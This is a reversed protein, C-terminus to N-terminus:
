IRMVQQPLLDVVADASVDGFEQFHRLVLGEAHLLIIVLAVAGGHAPQHGLVPEIRVGVEVVHVLDIVRRELGIRRQARRELFQGAALEDEGVARALMGVRHHPPQLDVLMKLVHEVDDSGLELRLRRQLGVLTEQRQMLDIRGLRGHELVQRAIQFRRMREAHCGHQHHRFALAFHKAFIPFQAAAVLRMDVMQGVVKGSKKLM